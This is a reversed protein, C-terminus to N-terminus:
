EPYIAAVPCVEPCVGCDVCVDDDIKAILTRGSSDKLLEIAEVPCESLCAECAICDESIVYAM